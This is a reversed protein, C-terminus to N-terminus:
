DVLALWRARVNQFRVTQEQGAKDTYTIVAAGAMALKMYSVIAANEYKAFAAIFTKREAEKKLDLRALHAPVEALWAKITEADQANVAEVFKTFCFGPDVLQEDSCKAPPDARPPGSKAEEAQGLGGGAALALLVLGCTLL